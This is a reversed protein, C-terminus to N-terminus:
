RIEAIIGSLPYWENKNSVFGFATNERLNLTVTVTWGGSELWSFTHVNESVKVVRYEKDIAEQGKEAGELGKWHIKGNTLLVVQYKGGKFAGKTWQWTITKGKLDTMTEHMIIRM